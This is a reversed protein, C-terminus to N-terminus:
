RPRRRRIGMMTVIISITLPMALLSSFEPIVLTSITVDIDQLATGLEDAPHDLSSGTDTGYTAVVDVFDELGWETESFTVSYYGGGSTTVVYATRVANEPPPTKISVTVTADDVPQNMSDNVYGEVILWYGANSAVEIPM